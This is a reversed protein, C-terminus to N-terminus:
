GTRLPIYEISTVGVIVNAGPNSVDLAVRTDAGGQLNWADAIKDYVAGSTMLDCVYEGPFRPHSYDRENLAMLDNDVLNLRVDVGRKLQINNIITDVGEGGIRSSLIIAEMYNDTPLQIELNSNASAIPVDQHSIRKVYGPLSTQENAGLLEQLECSFLRVTTPNLVVVTGLTAALTAGIAPASFPTTLLTAGPQYFLGSSDSTTLKLELTQLGGTRFASDKARMGNISQLDIFFTGVFPLTVNEVLATSATAVNRTLGPTQVQAFTNADMPSYWARRRWVNAIGLVYAPCSVLTQRGEAILEVRPILGFPSDTRLAPKFTNSGAPLAVPTTISGSIQVMYGEADYNRPLNQFVVQSNAVFPQSAILRKIRQQGAMGALGVSVWTEPNPISLHYPYALADPSAVMGFACLAACAALLAFTRINM